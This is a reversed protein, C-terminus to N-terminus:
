FSSRSNYSPKFSTKINHDQDVFQMEFDAFNSGRMLRTALKGPQHSPVDGRFDSSGCSYYPSSGGSSIFLWGLFWLDM